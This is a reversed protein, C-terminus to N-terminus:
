VPPATEHRWAPANRVGIINFVKQEESKNKFRMPAM